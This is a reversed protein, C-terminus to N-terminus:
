VPASTPEDMEINKVMMARHVEGVSSLVIVEEYAINETLKRFIRTKSARILVARPTTM